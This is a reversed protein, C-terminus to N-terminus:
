LGSGTVSFGPHRLHCYTSSSTGIRRQSGLPDINASGRGGFSVPRGRGPTSQVSAFAFFGAPPPRDGKLAGGSHQIQSIPLLQRIKRLSASHMGGALLNTFSQCAARLSEAFGLHSLMGFSFPIGSRDDFVQRQSITGCGAHHMFAQAFSPWKGCRGRKTMACGSEQQQTKM